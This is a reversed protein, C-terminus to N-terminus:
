SQTASLFPVTPDGVVAYLHILTLAGALGDAKLSRSRQFVKVRQRLEADYLNSPGTASVEGLAKDLNRRLWVVSEGRAGPRLVDIDLAPPKWIIMSEGNWAQEIDRAAVWYRKQGSQLLAEEGELGAVTFHAVRGSVSLKVLVPLNLRLLEKWGLHVTLCNLGRTVAKECADKGILDQYALHWQEFLAVFGMEESADAVANDALLQAVSLKPAQEKTEVPISEQEAAALQGIPMSLSGALEPPVDSNSMFGIAWGVVLALLLSAAAMYGYRRVPRAQVKLEIEAAAQRVTATDVDNLDHAYAGLLARDCLVNILRPIGSSLQYIRAIAGKSFLPRKSGAVKLRHVVYERTEEETLAILHYRATIRQALQRMDNRALIERLEPQGVLVVHLLKHKSTELNTLLRIQELVETDLNQAEDVILVARRNAAHAALLHVNLADVLSKISETKPYDIKFEDCISAVFELATLKPNLILAVDVNSPLQELLARTLTTKGTGVEGTLQVFGDSEKIGYLLHALAEQHRRSVYLYRPDPTITFPAEGLGFYETYM